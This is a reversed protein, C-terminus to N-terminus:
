FEGDKMWSFLSDTAEDIGPLSDSRRLKVRLTRTLPALLQRLLESRVRIEEPVVGAEALCNAVKVPVQGWVDAMSNEAKMIEGGVVAGSRRDVLMLLYPLFRREGKEGVSTPMRLLDIELEFNGRPLQKLRRLIGVDMIINLFVPEPPEVRIFQDEWVLRDAQQRPVRVLYTDDDDSDLLTPDDKVRPAVELTQALACTLFRAEEATVFWPLSGPRYSRFMPWSHAGRFKLGLKKIVDRDQKEPIDRDEFSAQLQPIELVQRPDADTNGSELNWFGYLGEAGQYLGIAFHEGAMGMVSVFGLEGTEPNQVGFLESEDMWEWPALEKVRVATDYLQRAEELSPAVFTTKKAM